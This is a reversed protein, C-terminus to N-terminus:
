SEIIYLEVRFLIATLGTRNIARLAACEKCSVLSNPLRYPHTEKLLYLYELSIVQILQVM